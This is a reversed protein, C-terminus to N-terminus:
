KYLVQRGAAIEDHLMDQVVEDMFWDPLRDGAILTERAMTGSISQPAAGGHGEPVYSQTAKDFGIADFFMPEIGIDGVADFIRRNEDPGYFDGVGAHDRGIIFHSCGMNKRCLATFVAERPGCYRPWTSFGGLIVRGTEYRGFELLLQYSRMIPEPLFDNPKKPGIVPSIFLGDAHARELAEVQIFQHVRHAVNRTHFGVVRSWNKHAFLFRTQHPSLLYHRFPSPLADLLSIDGALVTEGATMMQAAGPHDVSDTGFWQRAVARTDIRYIESVKLLARSTGADNSLVVWDGISVGRVADDPMQLIMPMTWVAGSPLRNEALVSDLTERDMFGTLPSFTGQAIQECDLLDSDRVTLRRLGNAEAREEPTAMREVLAGGQPSPLLSVPEVFQSPLLDATGSEFNQVVKVVMAACLVPYKGIATEAALVLGDAGDALTNYIDNVEARTPTPEVVMSELLNTAVYIKRGRARATKIISKQLAPIREIPVQRSLDGRDILLADSLDAIQQLNRLGDLTEIKSIIQADRGALERILAVDDGRNAFSLAFHRLGLERGAAIAGRDKKSLAPLAIEREVTVAKNSGVIGGHLVRAVACDGSDEGEFGIVQVLVSAFDISIFDGIEIADIINRPNFNLQTADGPVRKRCIRVIHNEKLTVSGDALTGTRIQAGETDLCVPVDTVSQIFKVTSAVDDLATHSLNIRFLTAGLDALRGIVGENLSAPGLTCLLDKKM